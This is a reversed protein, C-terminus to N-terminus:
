TPYIMSNQMIQGAINPYSNCFKPFALSSLVLVEANTVAITGDPHPPHDILGNIGIPQGPLITRSDPISRKKSELIGSILINFAYSTDGQFTIRDESHCQVIVGCRHIFKMADTDSLGQLIAIVQTPSAKLRSFLVKWLYEPCVLQSNIISSTEAFEAYFWKKAQTNLHTRKRAQRFFPSRVTQLHEIDDVLLVYPTLLGYGEDVFNRGFRQFGFQEYLRILHFNCVGFSFLIQQKCYIEYSKSSLLYPVTSNRYAPLVMFKSTYAFKQNNNFQAFRRLSLAQVWFPSFDSVEGINIRLTGIIDSGSKAYLLIGWDDLEDYLLRNLHDMNPFRKRMEEAYIRYRLHYIKLKEERTTAVAIEIATTKETYSVTNLHKPTM